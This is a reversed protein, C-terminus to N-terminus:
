LGNTTENDKEQQFSNKDFLNTNVIIFSFYFEYALFTNKNFSNM